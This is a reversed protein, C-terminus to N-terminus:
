EVTSEASAEEEALAAEELNYVRELEPEIQEALTTYPTLDREIANNVANQIENAPLGYAQYDEASHEALWELSYIQGDTAVVAYESVFAKSIEYNDNSFIAERMEQNYAGWKTYYEDLTMGDLDEESVDYCVVEDFTAADIQFDNVFRVINMEEGSVTDLWNEFAEGGVYNILDGTISHYNWCHLQCAGSADGIADGTTDAASSSSTEENGSDTAGDLEASSESSITTEEPATNEATVTSESSNSTNNSPDTTSCSMMMGISLLGSLILLVMNKKM